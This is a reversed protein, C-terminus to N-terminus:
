PIPSGLGTDTASFRTHAITSGASGFGITVDDHSNGLPVVFFKWHDDSGDGVAAATEPSQGPASITVDTVIEPVAGYMFRQRDKAVDAFIWAVPCLSCDPGNIFREGRYTVQMSPANVVGPAPGATPHQAYPIKPPSVSFTWPNPGIRGGALEKPCESRPGALVNVLLEADRAKYTGLGYVADDHSLADRLRALADPTTSAVQAAFASSNPPLASCSRRDPRPPTKLFSLLSGPSVVLNYPRFGPQEIVQLVRALVGPTVTPDIGWPLPTYHEVIDSHDLTQQARALADGNADKAIVILAGHGNLQLRAPTVVKPPRPTIVEVHRHTTDIAAVIGAVALSLVAIIVTATIMRRRAVRRRVTRVNDGLPPIEGALEALERRLEEVRMLM